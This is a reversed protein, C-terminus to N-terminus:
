KKKQSQPEPILKIPSASDKPILEPTHLGKDGVTIEDVTSDYTVIAVISSTNVTDHGLIIFMNSGENLTFDSSQWTGDRNSVITEIVTSSTFRKFRDGNNPDYGTVHVLDLKINPVSTGYLSVVKSPTTIYHFLIQNDNPDIPSKINNAILDTFTPREYTITVTPSDLVRYVDLTVGDNQMYVLKLTNEGSLLVFNELTWRGDDGITIPYHCNNFVPLCVAIKIGPEGTGEVTIHASLSSGSTPSTILPPHTIVLVGSKASVNSSADTATITFSNSGGTLAVRAFEFTGGTATATDVVTEGKYLTVTSGDDATGVLTVSTTSVTATSNTFVPIAPATFDATVSTTSGSGRVATQVAASGNDNTQVFSFELPVSPTEDGSLTLKLTGTTGSLAFKADEGDITGTVASGKVTDFTVTVIDGLKALTPDANDSAISINTPVAPTVPDITVSNGAGLGRVATQTAAANGAADTQVFSFALPSGQTEYGRLTLELTGTTGSLAFKADEGDITGTVASGEETDFSVTVTDGSVANTGAGNHTIYIHTPVAPAEFDATVSSGIGSGRVATQTVGINGAADTQNFNFTLPASETESGVIIIELIGVTDIVYFSAFAGDIMGEVVATPGEEIDFTVTVTDDLKAKTPDANDSEISINTPIAPATFDATVSTTNGFGKVATQAVTSGHSNSQVFSFTLLGETETGNLTRTLTSSAGAYVFEASKGDITGTVASGEETDFTITVIDGLKALTLDTNDSEISIDTPVAPARFDVTVSDGAGSGRVATQTVGINGAADTQTFKFALSAGETETGDLTLELTGVTGTVDPKANKGNITGEVTSGEETDFTVTVTDDLKARTPDTNDSEISINDPVDPAVFDATVSSSSGSGRVATQTAADNGALDTQTFEFTLPANETETGDLTRTLTSSAGAYVFEASKGDITGTVASGEDTGFTITVTDDLKALSTDTNNSAISIDTPVAPAVFDATVSTTDGSGKVATQAVTSGHSNSQVFSFTLPIVETEDGSLTLVLFGNFDDSEFKANEGDITGTVASGEETDFTVTVNDGLRANPYDGDHTIYIYTPVAPARFDVTVSDGAGSGRVATQPVGINGAADTQTFKFALSAGETETGDLTLELTGVTGTVDPKANKGNITGEVTSGEETDFTVTVIDGLKARTPDTNDSEISINASAAPARFDATVSSSSGSGRVATQTAADNGALDTQTFEFTLPANETETGNLTRTLTSSAGAYVFEASKGDITGTVTSGEDTGFTITVTDGLKALSTDRANDSEISINTPIAPLITDLILIETGSALSTNSSADTAAITFHNPGETLEVGTFRFFGSGGASVSGVSTGDKFLEVTSDPEAFGLLLIPTTNFLVKPLHFAPALPPVNDITVSTGRGDGKVATQTDGGNGVYDFIRFSFPLLKVELSETGDLTRTLKGTTGDLAYTADRGGITGTTRTADTDTDFTVTVIDGFKAVSTAGGAGNHAISINDPTTPYDFDTTVSTDVGTGQVATYTISSGDRDTITLSFTIQSNSNEDGNLTKTMTGTNGVTASVLNRNNGDDSVSGTFTSGTALDFTVTVEDNYRAKTTDYVNNSAISINIPEIVRYLKVERFSNGANDHCRYTVRYDGVTSTDIEDEGHTGPTSSFLNADSCTPTPPTPTPDGVELRVTSFDPSGAFTPLTADYIFTFSVAANRDSEASPGIKGAPFTVTTAGDDLNEIKYQFYFSTSTSYDHTGSTAVANSNPNTVVIESNSPLGGHRFAAPWDDSNSSTRDGFFHFQIHFNGSNSYLNTTSPATTADDTFATGSNTYADAYQTATGLSVLVAVALLVVISRTRM